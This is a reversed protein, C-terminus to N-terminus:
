CSNAWLGGFLKGAARKQILLESGGERFVFVSFAQHLKGPSQHAELLDCTGTAQGQRDCLVVQRENEEGHEM